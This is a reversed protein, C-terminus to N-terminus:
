PPSPQQARPRRHHSPLGAISLPRPWAGTLRGCSSGTDIALALYQADHATLGEEIATILSAIPPIEDEVMYFVALADLAAIARERNVRARQVSVALVNAVEHWFVPPVILQASVHDTAVAELATGWRRARRAPDVRDRPADVVIVQSM